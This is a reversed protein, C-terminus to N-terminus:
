NKSSLFPMTVNEIKALNKEPFCLFCRRERLGGEPHSTERLKSGLASSSPFGTKGNLLHLSHTALHSSLGKHDIVQCRKRVGLWLNARGQM